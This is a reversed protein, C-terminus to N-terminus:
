EVFCMTQRTGRVERQEKGSLEQPNGIHGMCKFDIIVFPQHHVGTLQITRRQHFRHCGQGEAGIAMKERPAVIQIRECGHPITVSSNLIVRATDMVECLPDRQIRLNADHLLDLRRIRRERGDLVDLYVIHTLMRLTILREFRMRLIHSGDTLHFLLDCASAETIDGLLHNPILRQETLGDIIAVDNGDGTLLSTEVDSMKTKRDPFVAVQMQEIGRHQMLLHDLLGHREILVQLLVAGM